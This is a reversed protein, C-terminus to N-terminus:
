SKTVRHVAARWSERDKVIEFECENLQHHWKVMEDETMGKEEQRWDKGADPDKRILWNKADPPWLIPTDAEADTRGIFIWSQNGKHKVPIIEKSDSPSEFTEELVVSVSLYEVWISELPFPFRKYFPFDLLLWELSALTWSTCCLWWFGTTRQQFSLVDKGFTEALAEPRGRLLLDQAMFVVRFQDTVSALSIPTRNSESQM